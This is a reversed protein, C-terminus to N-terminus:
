SQDNHNSSYNHTNIAPCKAACTRTTDFHNPKKWNINFSGSNSRHSSILKEYEGLESEMFPFTIPCDIKYIQAGQNKM